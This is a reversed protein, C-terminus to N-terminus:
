QNTEDNEANRRLALEWLKSKMEKNKPGRNTVDPNLLYGTNGEVKAEILYGHDILWNISRHVTIYSLNLKEGITKRTTMVYSEFTQKSALFLYIKITSLETAETALRQLQGKYFVVFDGRLRQKKTLTTSLM